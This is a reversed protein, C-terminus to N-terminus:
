GAADILAAVAAEAVPGPIREHAVLQGGSNRVAEAFRTAWVDEWVLLAATSGAPVQAAIEQIDEDSVLGGYEGDLKEFAERVEPKMGDIELSTVNGDEDKTVVLLDMIRVIGRDVLDALAPAVEGNFESGPFEVVIYEVPGMAM